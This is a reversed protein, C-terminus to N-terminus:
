RALERLKLRYPLKEKEEEGHSVDTGFFTCAKLGCCDRDTLRLEAQRLRVFARRALQSLTIWRFILTWCFTWGKPWCLQTLDVLDNNKRVSILPVLRTAREM